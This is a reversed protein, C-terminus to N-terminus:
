EKYLAIDIYNLIRKKDTENLQMIKLALSIVESDIEDLCLLFDVSVKFYDALKILLNVEPIQKDNEYRSISSKQVHLIDALETQTLKESLRLQKLRTGFTM